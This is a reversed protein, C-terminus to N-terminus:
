AAPKLYKVVWQYTQKEAQPTINHGQGHNYIRINGPHGYLRYIPKVADIYPVSFGMKALRYGLPVIKGTEVGAIYKMQNDSTSHLAVVAPIKGCQKEPKLLYAKVRIGPEGEYEILQRILGECKEEGLLTISPPKPNPDLIGLYGTWTRKIVERKEAWEDLKTIPEGSSSILLPPMDQCPFLGAGSKLRSFFLSALLVGSNKIFIARKM